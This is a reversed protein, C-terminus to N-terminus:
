KGPTEWPLRDVLEADDLLNLALSAVRLYEYARIPDDIKADSTHSKENRFNDIAMTLFKVAENFDKDVNSAAAGNVHLSKGKANGKGFAKAGTEHDTYQRLRDRVIKFSKEVAEPYSGDRYLKECKAYIESHLTGLPIECPRPSEPATEQLSEILRDLLKIFETVSKSVSEVEAGVGEYYLHSPTCTGQIAAQSDRRIVRSPIQAKIYSDKIGGFSLKKIASFIRDTRTTTAADSLLDILSTRLDSARGALDIALTEVKEISSKSDMLKEIADRVEEPTRQDWGDPLGNIGGWEASFRHDLPPRRFNKYYLLGHYGAFSMSWSRGIRNSAAIIQRAEKSLRDAIPSSENKFASIRKSLMEYIDMMSQLGAIDSGHPQAEKADEFTFGVPRLVELIKRFENSVAEDDDRFSREVFAKIL